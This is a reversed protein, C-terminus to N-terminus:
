PKIEVMMGPLFEEPLDELKRTDRITFQFQHEKALQEMTKIADVWGYALFVRGDPNLHDQLGAFLSKMLDFNADYLAYEDITQPKQNVWPPNSVIVDFKEDAEIVAFASSNDLSVLRADFRDDLGLSKANYNANAIAAPNVDTAVVADAGAQLCCLALLGSGTGIELVRKGDVLDSERILKRLSDTDRSDWFVTEFVALNVDFDEVAGFHKIPPPQPASSNTPDTKTATQWISWNSTLWPLGLLLGLVIFVLIISLKKM